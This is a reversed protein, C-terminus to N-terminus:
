KRPCVFGLVHHFNTANTRAMRDNDWTPNCNQDLWEDIMKYDVLESCGEYFMILHGNLRVWSMELCIPRHKIYGITRILGPNIQEWNLVNYHTPDMAGKAYKEWLSQIAYHDAEVTFETKAILEDSM